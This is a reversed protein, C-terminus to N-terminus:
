VTRYKTCTGLLNELHAHRINEDDSDDETIISTSWRQQRISWQKLNNNIILLHFFVHLCFGLHLPAGIEYLTSMILSINIEKVCEEVVFNYTDIVSNIFVALQSLMICSLLMYSIGRKRINERYGFSPTIRFFFFLQFLVGAIRVAFKALSWALYHFKDKDSSYFQVMMSTTLACKLVWFALAIIGMLGVLLDVGKSNTERWNIEEKSYNAQILFFVNFIAVYPGTMKGM